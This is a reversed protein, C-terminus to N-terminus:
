AALTIITPAVARVELSAVYDNLMEVSIRTSAGIKVTPIEGTKMLEYLRSESIALVEAAERIRLLLRPTPIIQVDVMLYGLRRNGDRGCRESM